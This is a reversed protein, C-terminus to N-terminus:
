LLCIRRFVYNDYVNKINFRTSTLQAETIGGVAGCSELTIQEGVIAQNQFALIQIVNSNNTTLIGATFVIQNGIQVVSRRAVCGVETSVVTTVATALDNPATVVHISDRMLAVLQQDSYAHLGVLYDDTGTELRFGGDFRDYTHPDNTQSILIEDHKNLFAPTGTTVDWKNPVCFRKQFNVGFSPAPM